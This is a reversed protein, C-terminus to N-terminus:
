QSLTATGHSMVVVDRDIARVIFQLTNGADQWIDCQLTEGPFVPSSFRANLGTLRSADYDCCTKVEETMEGAMETMERAFENAALEEVLGKHEANLYMRNNLIGLAHFVEHFAVMTMMPENEDGHLSIVVKGEDSTFTKSASTRDIVVVAGKSKVFDLIQKKNIEM